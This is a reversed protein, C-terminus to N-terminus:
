FKSARPLGRSCSITGWRILLSRGLSEYTTAAAFVGAAAFVADTPSGPVPAPETGREEHGGHGGHQGSTATAKAKRRNGIASHRTGIDPKRAAQETSAQVNIHLRPKLRTELSSLSGGAKAAPKDWAFWKSIHLLLILKM